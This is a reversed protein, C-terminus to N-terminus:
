AGGERQREFEEPSLYGLSSHKRVRNYFAEIYDFIASRAEARTSFVKEFLCEAKITGIASETVANDYCDGTTGMSQKFHRDILVNRFVRCDYQSGKDSHFVCGSPPNRQICAMRFAIIVLTATQQEMMAWGVIKRSFLDEIVALYLVGELTYVSTIDGTWICNPTEASFNRNLLDPTKQLNKSRTTTGHRFAKATQPYLGQTAMLRRIRRRGVGIGMSALISGVRRTGYTRRGSCFAQRIVPMIEADKEERKKLPNKRWWYFGSRSIGFIRCMIKIEFEVCHEKM